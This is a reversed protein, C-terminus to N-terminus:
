PIWTKFLEQVRAYRAIIEFTLSWRTSNRTLPRLPMLKLLKEGLLLKELKSMLCNIQSLLEEEEVMILQVALNFRHSACGIFLKSINNAIAKNTSCNEGILASISDWSFKYLYLIYSMFAFNEDADLSIEDVKTLVDALM